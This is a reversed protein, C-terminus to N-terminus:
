GQGKHMLAKGGDGPPNDVAGSGRLINRFRHRVEGCQGFYQGPREQDAAAFALHEEGVREDFARDAALHLDPGVDVPEEQFELVALRSSGVGSPRGSTRRPAPHELEAVLVKAFRDPGGLDDQLRVRFSSRWTQSMKASSGCILPVGIRVGREPM